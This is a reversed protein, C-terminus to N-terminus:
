LGISQKCKPCKVAFPTRVVDVSVQSFENSCSPCKVNPNRFKDDVRKWIDSRICMESEMRGDYQSPFSDLNDKSEAMYSLLLISEILVDINNKGIRGSHNILFIECDWALREFLEKEYFYFITKTTQLETIIYIAFETLFSGDADDVHEVDYLISQIYSITPYDIIPSDDHILNIKNLNESNM